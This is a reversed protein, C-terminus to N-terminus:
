IGSLCSFFCFLVLTFPFIYLNRKACFQVSGDLSFTLNLVSAFYQKLVNIGAHVILFQKIDESFTSQLM